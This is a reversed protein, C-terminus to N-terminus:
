WWQHTHHNERRELSKDLSEVARSQRAFVADTKLRTGNPQLCDSKM